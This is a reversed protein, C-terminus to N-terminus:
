KELVLKAKQEALGITVIAGSNFALFDTEIGDSFIVGKKPMLSEIELESNENIKGSTLKIKTYKSKFPERVQKGSSIDDKSFFLNISNAMNILSSLWGTSGAGTSVIIGSSSQRETIDQYTTKYRASIHSAPGIFLDNFATLEQGDDLKAAAMTVMKYYYRNQLVNNLAYEFNTSTYPLLIGDYRETDPNVGIIPIDNVYKATNAVLGDQGVVIVVDINDFIYSPLFSRDIVNVKAYNSLIKQVYDLSKYFTKHELEYDAYASDTPEVIQIQQQVIQQHQSTKQQLANKSAKKTLFNSKAQTIYFKAQDATNFRETLNELRTKNKVIIAKKSKSKM